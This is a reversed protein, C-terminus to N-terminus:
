LLKNKRKSDRNVSLVYFTSSNEKKKKKLFINIPEALIYFKYDPTRGIQLIEYSNNYKYLYQLQIIISLLSYVTTEDISM